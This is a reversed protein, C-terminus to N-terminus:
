RRRFDEGDADPQDRGGAHARRGFRFRHDAAQKNRLCRDIARTIKEGVVSGMSGGIFAYEMACIEVERGDLGGAAAM